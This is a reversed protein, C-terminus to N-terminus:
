PHRTVTLSCDPCCVDVTQMRQVVLHVGIAEISDGVAIGLGTSTSRQNACPPYEGHHYYVRLGSLEGNLVLYCPADVQCQKVNERVVGRVTARDNKITISTPSLKQGPPYDLALVSSYVLCSIACPLALFVYKNTM